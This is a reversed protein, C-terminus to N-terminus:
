KLPVVAEIVETDWRTFRGGNPVGGDDSRALNPTAARLADVLEAKPIENWMRIPKTSMMVWLDHPDQRAARASMLAELFARPTANHSGHHGVKLFTTHELLAMANEDELLGRWTGWQADGPFLLSAGDVEFLLVLSTGNVARELAVALAFPDFRALDGLAERDRQTLALHRLADNTELEDGSVDWDKAFPSPAQESSGAGVSALRLYTAGPPPNMDKIVSPDSSPGLVHVRVGPLADAEFLPFGHEVRLFKRRPRGAFGRHLTEMAKANTLSNEALRLASNDEGVGMARLGIALHRAAASQADRIRRAEPDYPDETWPMWVESVEVKAWGPHVFGSVHDQHRHSAVVIDIRAVDDDDTVDSIIEGVVDGIPRPGPGAAHSGCDILVRRPKGNGPFVLLFADGFGVNYMRVTVHTDDTSVTM